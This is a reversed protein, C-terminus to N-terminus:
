TPVLTVVYKGKQDGYSILYDVVEGEFTLLINDM